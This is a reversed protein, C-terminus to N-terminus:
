VLNHNASPALVVLALKSFEAQDFHGRFHLGKGTQTTSQISKALILHHTHGNIGEFFELILCLRNVYLISKAHTICVTTLKSCQM